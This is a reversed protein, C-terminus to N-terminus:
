DTLYTCSFFLGNANAANLFGNAANMVNITSNASPQTTIYLRAQNDGAYVGVPYETNFDGTQGLSGCGNSGANTVNKAAFPLGGIYASGTAGSAADTRLRGTVTVVNGIKTYYGEQIDYTFSGAATSGAYEPTWTGEEYDDLTNAANYTGAATGLTVGNPCIVSQHNVSFAEGLNTDITVRPISGASVKLRHQYGYTGWNTTAGNYNTGSAILYPSDQSSSYAVPTVLMTEGTGSIHLKESPSSTGIGVNGGNLYSSGNSKLSVNVTGSANRAVLEGNNTADFFLGGENAIGASKGALAWGATAPRESVFQGLGVSTGVSVAGDSGQLFFAHTNTDSGVRFDVDNGNDNVVVEDTFLSFVVSPTVSVGSTVNSALSFQMNADSTTDTNVTIRASNGNSDPIRDRNNFTLNANGGGDNVTMAVSGSGEGATVDGTSIIDPVGQFFESRTIKKTETASVDVIAVLDGNAANAGTLSNLESIKKDAM